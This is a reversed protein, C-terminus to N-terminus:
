RPSGYVKGRKEGEARLMYILTFVILGTSVVSLFAGLEPTALLYVVIPVLALTGVLPILSARLQM